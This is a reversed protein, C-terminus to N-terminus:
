VGFPRALGLRGRGRRDNAIRIGGSAGERLVEHVKAFEARLERRSEEGEDHVTEEIHAAILSHRLVTRGTRRTRRGRDCRELFLKTKIQDLNRM